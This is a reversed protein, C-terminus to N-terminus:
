LLFEVLDKKNARLLLFLLVDLPLHCLWHWNHHVSPLKEAGSARRPTLAPRLLSCLLRFVELRLQLVPNCDKALRWNRAMGLFDTFNLVM